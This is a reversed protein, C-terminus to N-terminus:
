TYMGFPPPKDIETTLKSKKFVKLTEELDKKTLIFKHEKDLTFVRKAHIMKCKSLFIEIDGGTNKFLKIDGKLINVIENKDLSTKWKMDSIMKIMIDALESANYNGIKHIWQFRRSLGKNKAFFRNIIDDEYGAGIFCFDNKHESLFATITEITEDSFSDRDSKRPCLSYVEDVFLVGGICSELLKRTKIATQGLYGAIFDDRYAVTFTGDPSLVGISQYIKGIIRAVSTKGCGPEGFIMTHLYEENKNHLHMGQLYYIIQLFITDKLSHMGIMNDLEELYPVIKWLMIIDINKYFKITKGIEILDSISNAPPSTEIIMKPRRIKKTSLKKDVQDELKRKSKNKSM